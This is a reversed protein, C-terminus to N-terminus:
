KLQSSTEQLKGYIYVGSFKIAKNASAIPTIQGLALDQKILENSRLGLITESKKLQLSSSKIAREVHGSNVIWVVIVGSSHLNWFLRIEQMKHVFAQVICTIQAYCASLVRFLYMRFGAVICIVQMGHVFELLIRRFGLFFVYFSTKGHLDIANKYFHSLHFLLLYRKNICCLHTM